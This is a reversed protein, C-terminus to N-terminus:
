FLRESERLGVRAGPFSLTMPEILLRGSKLPFLADKRVISVVWPKGGVMANGAPLARQDEILPRKAFDTATAEHVDAPQGAHQFPDQYLYVTLTVQEGVVARTKDVTAHLFAVPARVFDLALKPDTPLQPPEPAAREDGFDFLNKWPD